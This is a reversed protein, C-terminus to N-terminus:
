TVKKIKEADSIKLVDEDVRIGEFFVNCMNVL